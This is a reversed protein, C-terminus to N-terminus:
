ARKNMANVLNEIDFAFGTASCNYGYKAMLNDYRGGNLIAKGVGHAFGEFIIGTYYDFGRVEGLDITIFGKLGKKNIIDLVSILNDLTDKTVGASTMDIAKQVVDETGFLGPISM